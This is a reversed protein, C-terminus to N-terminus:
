CVRLRPAVLACRLLLAHLRPAVATICCHHLLSAVVTICCHHSLSTCCLVCGLHSLTCCPDCPAVLRLRPSCCHHLLSAVVTICCHHLLLSAVTVCGLHLLPPRDGRLRPPAPKGGLGHGSREALPRMRRRRQQGPVSGCGGGEAALGEECGTWDRITAAFAFCSRHWLPADFVCCRHLLSAVATCCHHLMPAVTVCCRHLLSAISVCCLRLLPAVSVCCRHLLPACRHFLSTVAIGVTASHDLRVYGAGKPAPPTPEIGAM